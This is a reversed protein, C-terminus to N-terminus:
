DEGRLIAMIEDTSQDTKLAGRMKSINSAHSKGPGRIVASGNGQYEVVVESGPKLGLAELIPGPITVEGTNSITAM